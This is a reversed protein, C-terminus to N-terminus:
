GTSLTHLHISKKILKDLKARAMKATTLIANKTALEGTNGHGVLACGNIGLLPAGGYTAPNFREKVSRLASKAMYAGLRYKYNKIMENKILRMVVSGLGESLKLVINGTFGDCVIVDVDGEFIDHGEINGIFNFDITKIIEFAKQSLENGKIDEEGINLLGVRPEPIELIKKVFIEGMIAFQALHEPDSDVNAGADLLIAYGKVTPLISALAPRKVGEIRKISFLSSALTAGTNGPSFFGDTKKKAVLAGAVMVSADKKKRCAKAPSEDMAIIESAHVVSIQKYSQSHQELEKYITTEDGVLVVEVDSEEVAKLAGQILTKPPSEGSMVDVAIKM